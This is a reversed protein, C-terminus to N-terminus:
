DVDPWLSNEENRREHIQRRAEPSDYGKAKGTHNTKKAQTDPQDLPSSKGRIQNKNFDAM